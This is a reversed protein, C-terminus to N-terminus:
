HMGTGGLKCRSPYPVGTSEALGVMRVYDDSFSKVDEDYGQRRSFLRDIVEDPDENFRCLIESQFTDWTIVGTTRYEDITDLWTAAPNVLALIAYGVTKDDDWGAVRAATKVARLWQTVTLGGAAGGSGSVLSNKPERNNAYDRRHIELLSCAPTSTQPPQPSM